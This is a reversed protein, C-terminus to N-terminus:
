CRGCRQKMSTVRDGLAGDLWCSWGVLGADAGGGGDAGWGWRRWWRGVAARGWVLATVSGGDARAEGADDSIAVEEAGPQWKRGVVSVVEGSRLLAEQELQDCPTNRSALRSPRYTGLPVPTCPYMPVPTCPDLPGPTWPDCVASGLAVHVAWVSECAAWAWVCQGLECASRVRKGSCSPSM